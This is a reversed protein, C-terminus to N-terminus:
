GGQSLRRPSSEFAVGLATVRGAEAHQLVVRETEGHCRVVFVVRGMFPDDFVDLNEVPVRCVACTPLARTM